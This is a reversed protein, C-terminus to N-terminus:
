RREDVGAASGADLGSRHVLGDPTDDNTVPAKPDWYEIAGSKVLGRDAVGGIPTRLSSTADLLGVLYRQAQTPQNCNPADVVYAGNARAGTETWGTPLFNDEPDNLPDAAGTCEMLCPTADPFCTEECAPDLFVIDVIEFRSGYVEWTIKCDSTATEQWLEHSACDGNNLLVPEADEVQFEHLRVVMSDDSLHNYSECVSEYAGVDCRTGGSAASVNYPDIRAFQNRQDRDVLPQDCLPALVAPDPNILPSECRGTSWDCLPVHVKTLGGHDLLESMSIEAELMQDGTADDFGCSADSLVNGADSAVYFSGWCLEDTTDPATLASRGISVSGWEMSVASGLGALNDRFTSFDVTMPGSKGYLAGGAAATNASFTSTEIEIPGGNQYIAGHVSDNGVVLSNTLTVTGAGENHIAGGRYSSTNNDVTSSQIVLTGANYIAGGSHQAQNKDLTVALLEASAGAQVRLAGGDSASGHSIRLNRLALSAGPVVDFFRGSSGSAHLIRSPAVATPQGRVVLDTTVTVPAALKYD